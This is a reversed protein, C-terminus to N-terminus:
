EREEQRLAFAVLAEALSGLEGEPADQQVRGAQEAAFRVLEAEAPAPFEGGMRARYFETFLEEVSRQARAGRAAAQADASLEKPQRAMDLLRSGHSLFLADLADFAGAPLQEDTLVARIYEGGRPAATESRIIQDLEGRVERLPHLPEIGIMEGRIDGKEGMEVLYAGKKWGIESFHYCMPSGAYRVSERGIAQPKHIHGLAVYDFADFASCDIQGVGGVMTESGGEEPASGGHLVLQHAVLVNRESPDISQRSLLARAAADYTRLEELGLAEEVAAPFLYPLLWFRVPGHEDQLTVSRLEGTVSGAIHVGQARLLDAAFALRPGSDHNGAVLLVAVGQASLGTLFRDCLEVAERSPVSRDYIDGSVVVAQPRVEETLRLFREVWAGQDGQEILSLGHLQKGFHLDALHFFKM